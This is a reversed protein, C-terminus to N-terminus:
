LLSKLRSARQQISDKSKEIGYKSKLYKQIEHVPVKGYYAAVVKNAEEPWTKILNPVVLADLEPVHFVKKEM